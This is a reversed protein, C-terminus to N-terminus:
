DHMSNVDDKPVRCNVDVFVKIVAFDIVCRRSSNDAKRIIGM